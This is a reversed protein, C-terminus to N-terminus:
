LKQISMIYWINRVQELTNGAIDRVIDYFDNLVFEEITTDNPLWFSLDNICQPYVSVPKYQIDKYLDTENFQNLFGSDKSWFLRIDPIDYLVMALRELGIGFAYGITDEIVGAKQLIENRVIGCGLVELWRNKYYIELEWSPYTFPFQTDTWRTKINEGFLSKSLGSLTNKLEHEALKVSELTHCDQKLYDNIVANKTNTKEFIELQGDNKFLQHKNLLRM